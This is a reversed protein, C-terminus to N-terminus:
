NFIERIRDEHGCSKRVKLKPQLFIRQKFEEEDGNEINDVLLRAAILGMKYVPQSITTLKPEVLASMRINDFGVIAIDDPIKLGSDKIADIAGIAMLDNAAFIAKPPKELQLLQKAALYGGEIENDGEVIYDESTNIEIEKLAREYGMLKERSEMGKLPGSIHAIRKYGLDILHQTAQYAGKLYDTYVIDVDINEKCSGIMVISTNRNKIKDIDQRELFSSILIFGDVRKELLMEIYEKEKEEDEETNCLLLNYGKQHAVDEIGKAVQPYLPNLINPILLAITSTRNLALSRAIGNPTYNMEEMVALVKEKTKISVAEPHNLVRSVTAVSVGAQKAVQRINAM